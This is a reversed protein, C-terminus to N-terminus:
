ELLEEILDRQEQDTAAPRIQDVDVDRLV